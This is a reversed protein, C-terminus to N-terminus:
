KGTKDKDNEGGCKAKSIIHNYKIYLNPYEKKMKEAIIHVRDLVGEGRVRKMNVRGLYNIDERIDIPLEQVSFFGEYINNLDQYYLNEDIRQLKGYEIEYVVVNKYRTLILPSHTTLWFSCNTFDEKLSRVLKEQINVHLFMEIEDILICINKEKLVLQFSETDLKQVDIDWVMTWIICLYINIINEIGDSYRGDINEIHIGFIRQITDCIFRLIVANSLLYDRILKLHLSYNKYSEQQYYIFEELDKMRELKTQADSVVLRNTPIYVSMESKQELIFQTLLNNYMVENLVRLFSTKGSNNYGYIISVEKEINITQEKIVGNEPIRIEMM